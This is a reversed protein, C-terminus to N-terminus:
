PTGNDYNVRRHCADLNAELSGSNKATIGPTCM